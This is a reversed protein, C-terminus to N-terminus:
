NATMLEYLESSKFRQKSYKKM